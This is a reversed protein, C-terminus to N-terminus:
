IEIIELCTLSIISVTAIPKILQDDIEKGITKIKNFIERTSSGCTEQLYLLLIFKVDITKYTSSMKKTSTRASDSM